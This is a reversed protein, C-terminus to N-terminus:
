PIMLKQGITLISSKLNNLKIVADITTNFRKSISFLTDGRGVEYNINFSVLQKIRDKIQNEARIDVDNKRGPSVERHTTVFDLGFGYAKMKKICWQAVSEVEENTLLRKTTDGSVAIGLMYNNCSSVNKFSSRGAHWCIKDDSALITRDGNENVICHYSVKSVPNLVWAVSGNFTGGSHHLIIGKPTMKNKSVNPTQRITNKFNM